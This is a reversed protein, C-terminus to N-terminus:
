RSDFILSCCTVGGEAKALESLDVARVTLGQEELRRRTAPFAAPYVVTKGVLLANAGHPESPDVHIIKKGQFAEPDVWEPNMLLTDEAVETVSSKLHLCGTVEVPHVTYDFPALLAGLQHIGELNTRTSLGVFVTKGSPLIDGGDMTGPQRIHYVKRHAALLEAIPQTEPRRSEAGPRMIVALEDLVIATDEVFVSDPLEPDVPLQQLICGLQVLSRTYLRHQARATDLNITQRHLHTLECRGIAPSIQRTVAIVMCLPFSLLGPICGPSVTEPVLGATISQSSIGCISATIGSVAHKSVTKIGKDIRSERLDHTYKPVPTLPTIEGNNSTSDTL